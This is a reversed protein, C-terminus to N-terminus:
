LYKYLYKKKYYIDYYYIIKEINVYQPFVYTNKNKIM